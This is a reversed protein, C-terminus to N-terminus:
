PLPETFRIDSEAAARRFESSDLALTIVRKYGFLVDIRFETGYSAPFWVGPAVRKYNVSFGAQRVNTGLFARVGWPVKVALDTYIRVPHYEGADVLAEGKWVARCRRDGEEEGNSVCNSRSAPQFAIRHAQRGDIERTDLWTFKYRPLDRTAFPFLSHPIGDRSKQNVTLDKILDEILEGDIDVGGSRYGAEAYRHTESRNKRHEGELSVLTKETRERGPTVTYVRKEHRAWQGDTRVLRATVKQQYIWRRREEVAGEMTRAMRAMIEAGDEVLALTGLIGAICTAGM